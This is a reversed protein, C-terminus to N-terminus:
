HKLAFYMVLIAGIALLFTLVVILPWFGAAKPPVAPVPAAPLAPVAPATPVRMAAPAPPAPAPPPTFQFAPSQPAPPAFTPAPMSSGGPPPAAMAANVQGRSLFVTFESPESPTPEVPPADGGPIRFVDTAENSGPRSMFPQNVRPAMPPTRSFISDAPANPAPTPRRPAEPPRAPVGSPELFPSRVNANTGLTSQGLQSGQTKKNDAPPQGFMQTFSGASAQPPEREPPPTPSRQLGSIEDRGFMRTFDGVPPKPPASNAVDPVVIPKDPAGPNEFPDRFFSTFEGAGSRQNEAQGGGSGAAPASPGFISEFSTAQPPASVPRQPSATPRAPPDNKQFDQQSVAMFERTFAGPEKQPTPIRLEPAPLPKEGSLGMFERTFSGPAPEAPVPATKPSTAVPKHGGLPSGGLVEGFIADTADSPKASVPPAPKRPAPEFTNAERFLRTFEGGSQPAAPGSTDLSFAATVGGLDESVSEVPHPKSPGSKALFARLEEASLEATEDGAPGSAQKEVPMGAGTPPVGPSTGPKAFSQYAGVWAKLAVAEPMKTTIFAESSPEDFGAKVIIGPPNPALACFRSIISATSLESAGTGACEFTYVVVAEQTARERALFTSVRGSTVMELIEYKDAFKM